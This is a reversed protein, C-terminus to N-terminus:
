ARSCVVADLLFQVHVDVFTQRDIKGCGTTAVKVGSLVAASQIHLPARTSGSHRLL